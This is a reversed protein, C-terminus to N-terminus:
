QIYQCIMRNIWVDHYRYLYYQKKYVSRSMWLDYYKYLQRTTSRTIQVVFHVWSRMVTSYVDM